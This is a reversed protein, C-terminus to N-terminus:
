QVLRYNFNDEWRSSSCCSYIRTSDLGWPSFFSLEGIIWNLLSTLSSSQSYFFKLLSYCPVWVPWSLILSSVHSSISFAGSYALSWRIREFSPGPATLEIWCSFPSFVVDSFPIRSSNNLTWKRPESIIMSGEPPHSLRSSSNGFHFPDPSSQTDELLTM